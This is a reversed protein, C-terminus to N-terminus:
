LLKPAADCRSVQIVSLMSARMTDVAKTLTKLTPDGLRDMFRLVGFPTIFVQRLSALDFLLTIVVGQIVRPAGLVTTVWLTLSRVLALKCSHLRRESLSQPKRWLVRCLRVKALLEGFKNVAQLTQCRTLLLLLQPISRRRIHLSRSCIGAACCSVRLLEDEEASQKGQLERRREPQLAEDTRHVYLRLSGRYGL